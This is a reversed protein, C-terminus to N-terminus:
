KSACALWVSRPILQVLKFCCEGMIGVPLRSADTLFTIRQQSMQSVSSPKDEMVRM